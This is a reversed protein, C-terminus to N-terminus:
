KSADRVYSFEEIDIDEYNIQVNEANKFPEQGVEIEASYKVDYFDQKEETAISGDKYTRTDLSKYIGSLQGSEGYSWDFEIDTEDYKYEASLEGFYIGKSKGIINTVGDKKTAKGINAILAGEETKFQYTASISVAEHIKALLSSVAVVYEQKDAFVWYESQSIEDEQETKVVFYENDKVAFLYSLKYNGSEQEQTLTLDENQEFDSYAYNSTYEIYVFLEGNVRKVSVIQEVKDKEFRKLIEKTTQTDTASKKYEVEESLTEERQYYGSFTIDEMKDYDSTHLDYYAKISNKAEEVINCEVAKDCGVSFLSIVFAIIIAFVSIIKKM